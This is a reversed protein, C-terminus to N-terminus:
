TPQARAKQAAVAPDPATYQIDGWGAMDEYSYQALEAEIAKIAAECDIKVQDLATVVLRQIQEIDKATGMVYSITLYGIGARSQKGSDLMPGVVTEELSSVSHALHRDRINKLHDFYKIPEGPINAFLRKDLKYRRVGSTFCKFFSVLSSNWLARNVVENPAAGTLDINALFDAVATLDQQVSIVDRFHLTANSSYSKIPFDPTTM